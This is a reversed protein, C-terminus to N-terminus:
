YISCTNTPMSLYFNPNKALKYCTDVIKTAVKKMSNSHDVVLQRLLKSLPHYQDKLNLEMYKELANCGIETCKCINSTDGQDNVIMFM